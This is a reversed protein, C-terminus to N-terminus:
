ECDNKRYNNFFTLLERFNYKGESLKFMEQIVVPINKNVIHYM